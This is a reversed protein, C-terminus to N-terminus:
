GGGQSNGRELPIGCNNMLLNEELQGRINLILKSWPFLPKGCGRKYQKFTLEFMYYTVCKATHQVTLKQLITIAGEKAQVQLNDEIQIHYVTPIQIGAMQFGSM